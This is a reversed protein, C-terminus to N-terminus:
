YLEERRIMKAQIITLVLIILFLIIAEANAQGIKYYVFGKEYIDYTLVKVANGPAGQGGVTMVYVESFITFGNITAMVLSLLLIPKLLPMIINWLVRWEGAGDVEAAELYQRPISKLGVWFILMYYGLWKWVVFAVISGMSYRKDVLWGISPVGFNSLIFNLIGYQPDYIWKWIIACPVVSLVVPLFFVTQLFPIGIIKRREMVLAVAFAVILVVITSTLAFVLTNSMAISFDRDRTFLYVYNRLGVFNRVPNILQADTMSLWFANLIPWCRLVVYLMFVPFLGRYSFSVESSKYGKTM